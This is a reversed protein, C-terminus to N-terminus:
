ANAKFQLAMYRLLFIYGVIILVIKAGFLIWPIWHIRKSVSVERNPNKDRKSEASDIIRWAITYYLYQILDCGVAIIFGGLPWLLSNSFKIDGTKDGVRLLWIIAIGAFALQRALDSTRGSYEEFAKRIESLKIM